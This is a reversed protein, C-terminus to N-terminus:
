FHLFNSKLVISLNHPPLTYALFSFPNKPSNPFNVTSDRSQLVQLPFPHRSSPRHCHLHCRMPVTQPQSKLLQLQRSRKRGSTDKQTPRFGVRDLSTGSNRIKGLLQAQM